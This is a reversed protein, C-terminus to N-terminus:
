RDLYEHQIEAAAERARPKGTTILETYVLLPHITRPAAGELAIEGPIGLVILPGDHSRQARLRRAYEPRWTTVHLVTDQGRHFGTLRMAAAGGGWAWNGENGLVEEIRRELEPPTTEPTRFRGVLLRPRVITAYGALWRDLLAQRDILRRHELEGAAIGDATLRAIAHAAANKSVGAATALTRVPTNILEPRALIAFLVRHGAVGIGRGRKSTKKREGQILAFHEQGIQIRCNGAEDVYNAGNEALHRGM